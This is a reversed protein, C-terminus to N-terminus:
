VTAKLAAVKAAILKLHHDLHQVAFGIVTELTQPGRESHEGAKHFDNDSLKKLVRTLQRRFLAIMEVADEASQENYYLREAFRNEDWALLVPGDMAIVRRIRDAFAAEADALHIVVQQTSWKGPVPTALLQERTLGQVASILLQPGAAYEDILKRNM